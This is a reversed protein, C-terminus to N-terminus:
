LEIWVKVQTPDVAYAKAVLNRARSLAEALADGDRGSLLEGETVGLREALAPIREATPRSKGREWAWITPKSVKLLAALEDLTLGQEKRLRAIRIPLTDSQASLPASPPAPAPQSRLELASLAGEPLPTEFRCGYFTDSRWVVQASATGMLPLAIEIREAEALAVPSVILLGTTSINHIMVQATQGSATSGESEIRLQRRPARPRPRQGDAPLDEFHALIPMNWPMNM